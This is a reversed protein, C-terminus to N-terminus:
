FANKIWEIKNNESIGVVDFRINYKWQNKNIYTKSTILINEIKKNNIVELPNGYNSNKRYKVEVFILTKTDKEYMILDIEGYKCYFNKEVFKLKKSILFEKAIEEYEFGIERKSKM